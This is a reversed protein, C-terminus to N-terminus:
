RMLVDRLKRGVDDAQKRSIFLRVLQEVDAVAGSLARPDNGAKTLMELAQDSNAKLEARVVAQLRELLPVPPVPAPPRPPSTAPAGGAKVRRMVQTLSMAVLQPNAQATCLVLLWGADVPRVSVRGEAFRLEYLAGEGQTWEQFFTDQALERALGELAQRDFLAPFAAGRLGTADFVMSGVVGPIASLQQLVADM